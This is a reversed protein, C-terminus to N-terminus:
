IDDDLAPATSAAAQGINVWYILLERLEREAASM